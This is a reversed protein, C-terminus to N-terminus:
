GPTDAKPYFFLVVTKGAFDKLAVKKGDQDELSFAPAKDNVEMADGEERVNYRVAASATVQANASPETEACIALRDRAELPGRAM